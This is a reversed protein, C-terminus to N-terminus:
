VLKAVAAAKREPALHAYRLTMKLDTHGMLERVTNLDVGAMVLKSAFDHRMDHWRFNSIMAMNLLNAWAKKINNKSKGDKGPFVLGVGCNQEKWAKMVDFVVTNLPIHRTKGTKETKGLVTLIGNDLNVENWELQVLEGWRMGTHLSLEVMPKVHDVFVVTSLDLFLPYGREARWINAKERANRIKIEREDLANSLCKDEEQSLYRVRSNDLKAPKILTLPHVSLFKWEVAKTFMSKLVSIDRNITAPAKGAIKRATSFKEIMHQDIEELLLDGCDKYFYKKLRSVAKKGDKMSAEAYKSYEEDVFSKLTHQKHNTEKARPNIDHLLGGLVKSAKDRAQTPTHTKSKGVVIRCQKRGWRYRVLYTMVGSPQIRLTFGKLEKDYIEFPKDKLEISALLKKDIIAKM